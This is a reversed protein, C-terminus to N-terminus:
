PTFRGSALFQRDGSGTYIDASNGSRAHRRRKKRTQLWRLTIVMGAVIDAGSTHGMLVLRRIARHPDRGAQLCRLLHLVPTSFEGYRASNLYSCSVSTTLTTLQDASPLFPCAQLQLSFHSAYLVALAGTLMDDGGPTLGPGMGILGTWSPPTGRKWQMLGEQLLGAAIADTQLRCLPGCLGTQETYGLLDPVSMVGNQPILNLRRRLSVSAEHGVLTKGQKIWRQADYVKAFNRTSLLVGAPAVGKGYRIFTLLTGDAHSYNIAHTFRSHLNWEGDSLRDVGGYALSQVIM